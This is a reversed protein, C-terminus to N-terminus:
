PLLGQLSLNHVNAACFVLKKILIKRFFYKILTRSVKKCPLCHYKKAAVNPFFFRIFM